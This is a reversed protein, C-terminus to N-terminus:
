NFLYLNDLRKCYLIVDILDCIRLNLERNRRVWTNEIIDKFNKDKEVNIEKLNEYVRISFHGFNKLNKEGSTGYNDLILKINYAGIKINNDILLHNIPDISIVKISRLLKSIKHKSLKEERTFDLITRKEFKIKSVTM